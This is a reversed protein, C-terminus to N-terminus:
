PGTHERRAALITWVADDASSYAGTWRSWNSKGLAATRVKTGDIRVITLGFYSVKADSIEAWQVFPTDFFRFMRVGADSLELRMRTARLFGLIGVSGIVALGVYDAPGGDPQPRLAVVACWVLLAGACLWTFLHFGKSRIVVPQTELHRM